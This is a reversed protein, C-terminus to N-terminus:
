VMEVAHNTVCLDDREEVFDLVRRFENEIVTRDSSVTSFGLLTRQWLDQFDVEAVAVNFKNQVNKKVSSLIHRKGKLSTVGPFHAEITLVGVTM